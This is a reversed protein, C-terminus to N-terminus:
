QINFIEIGYKTNYTVRRMVQEPPIAGIPAAFIGPSPQPRYVLKEVVQLIGISLLICACFNVWFLLHRTGPMLFPNM